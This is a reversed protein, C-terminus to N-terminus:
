GSRKVLIPITVAGLKSIPPAITRFEYKTCGQFRCSCNNEGEDKNALKQKSSAGGFEENVKGQNRHAFVTASQGFYSDNASPKRRLGKLRISLIRNMIAATPNIGGIQNVRM